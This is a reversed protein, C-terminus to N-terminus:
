SQKREDLKEELQRVRESLQWIAGNHLQQLRTTNIMRRGGEEPHLIGVKELDSENYKLWQGFESPIDGKAVDLARVLQVDDFDDFTTWEVDAHASGEVDFIFRTTGNNRIVVINADTGMDGYDNSSVKTGELVIAGNSTTAKGSPDTTTAGRLDLGRTAETFGTIELGGAGGFVKKIQGYTDAATVATYTHAVDSSQTALIEGDGAGQDLIIGGANTFTWLGSISETQDHEPYNTHLDGSDGTDHIVSDGSTTLGTGTNVSLVGSAYALGTGAAASALAVDNANVMIGDGAGVALVKSSIALGAGAIADDIQLAGANFSLGAPSALNVRIDNTSETLGFNTDIFDTVDVAVSDAAVDIGDGAGVDIETNGADWVLGDGASSSLDVTIDDTPDDINIAKKNNAGSENITDATSNGRCVNGVYVNYHSAGAEDIAYRQAPTVHDDTCTNGIVAINSSANINIGDYTNTSSTSNNKCLNGSVTAGRENAINQILIGHEGNNICSNGTIAAQGTSTSVRLGSDTSSRVMNGSFVGDGLHLSQIGVTGASLVQCNSVTIHQITAQISMGIAGPNNIVCGDIKIRSSTSAGGVLQIGDGTSDEIVISEILLNHPEDAITNTTKLGIYDGKSTCNSFVIDLGGHTQYGGYPSSSNGSSSCGSVTTGVQYELNFGFRGNDWSSCNVISNNRIQGTASGSLSFGHTDNDYALCNSIVVTGARYTGIGYGGVSHAICSSILARAEFAAAGRINVVAGETGATTSGKFSHGLIRQIVIDTSDSTRIGHQLNTTQNAKNGDLQLDSIIINSKSTAHLIALLDAADAMKLVTSWGGGMITTNSGMNLQTGVIYVSDSPFYVTGGGATDAATLAAQIATADDTVGDGTAGYTSDKVNIVPRVLNNLSTGGFGSTQVRIKRLDSPLHGTLRSTTSAM